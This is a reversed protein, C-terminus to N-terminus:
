HVWAVVNREVDLDEVLASFCGVADADDIVDRRIHREIVQAPGSGSAVRRRAQEILRQLGAGADDQRDDELHVVVDDAREVDRVEGFHLGEEIHISVGAGIGVAGRVVRWGIVAWGGIVGDVILVAVLVVVIASEHLHICREHEVEGEALLQSFALAAGNCATTEHGELEFDKVLAGDGRLVHDEGVVQRVAEGEFVVVPEAGQGALDGGGDKTRDSGSLGHAEGQGGAKASVSRGVGGEGVAGLDAGCLVQAAGRHRITVARHVVIRAVVANWGVIFDVVGIAVLVIGVEGGESHM